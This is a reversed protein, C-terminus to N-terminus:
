AEWARAWAQDWKGPGVQRTGPSTMPRGPKPGQTQTDPHHADHDQPTQAHALAIGTLLAITSTTLRTTMTRM